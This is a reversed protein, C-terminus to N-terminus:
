KLSIRVCMAAMAVFSHMNMFVAIHAAFVQFDIGIRTMGIGRVEATMGSFFAKRWLCGLVEKSENNCKSNVTRM